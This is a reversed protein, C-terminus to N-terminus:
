GKALGRWHILEPPRPVMPKPMGAAMPAWNALGSATTHQTVPSPETCIFMWSSEVQRCYPTGMLIMEMLM